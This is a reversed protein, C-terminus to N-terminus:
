QALSSLRRLRDELATVEAQVAAAGRQQIVSARQAAREATSVIEQLTRHLASEVSRRSEIMREDFDGLVRNANAELLRKTFARGARSSAAQMSFESRFWDAFWQWLPPTTHTMFFTFHFRGRARLGTEAVLFAPLAETPLEGSARLRELFANAHSVFRETVAAFEREAIPREEDMWARVIGETVAQAQELAYKRLAPGRRVPAAQMREDLATEAHPMAATVFRERDQDLRRTLKAQEANFLHTLEVLAQEASAACRRLEELRRHSAEIPRLLADREEVLQQRLRSALIEVGRSAAQSVLDAGKARALGTLMDVLTPWDRPPCPHPHQLQELASIELVRPAAHLRRQLVSETFARAEQM